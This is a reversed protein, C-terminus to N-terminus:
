LVSKEVTWGISKNPIRSIQQVVCDQYNGAMQLDIVCIADTYLVPHM